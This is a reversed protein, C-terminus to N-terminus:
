IERRGTEQERAVLYINGKKVQNHANSTFLIYQDNYSFIPHPHVDQVRVHM